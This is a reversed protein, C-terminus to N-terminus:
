KYPTPDKRRRLRRPSNITSVASSAYSYRGRHTMSETRAYIDDLPSASPPSKLATSEGPFADASEPREDGGFTEIKPPPSLDPLVPAHKPMSERQQRLEEEMQAKKKKSGSIKREGLPETSKSRRLFGLSSSTRRSTSQNGNETIAPLAEASPAVRGPTSATTSM